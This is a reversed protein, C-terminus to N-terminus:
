GPLRHVLTCRGTEFINQGPIAARYGSIRFRTREGAVAM